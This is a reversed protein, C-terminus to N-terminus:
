RRGRLVRMPDGEPRPQGQGSSPATARHGNRVPHPSLPQLLGSDTVKLLGAKRLSDVPYSDSAMLELSFDPELRKLARLSAEAEGIQGESYQLAAVVRHAARLDPSRQVAAMAWKLAGVRDGIGISTYANRLDFLAPSIVALQNARAAQAERHADEPHGAFSLAVSMCQRVWANNPDQRKAEQALQLAFDDQELVGMILSAIALIFQNHPAAEMARRILAEAEDLVLGPDGSLREMVLTHRLYARYAMRAPSPPGDHEEALMADARLLRSHDYSFVDAIPLDFLAPDLQRHATMAAASLATVAEPMLRSLDTDPGQITRTWLSRNTRAEAVQPQLIMLGPLATIRCSLALSGPPASTTEVPGFAGEVDADLFQAARNAGDRAIVEALVRKDHDPAESAALYLVLRGSRRPARAAGGPADLDVAKSGAWVDAFHLRQDRIWDEFEPDRVDLGEAFEPMARGAMDKGPVLLVEVLRENLSIWGEGSLLAESGMRTRVTHLAQRLSGAAQDPARDSWLKDMIQVRGRRFGPAVALLTLIARPKAGQPTVDVGDTRTARLPGVLDLVIEPM